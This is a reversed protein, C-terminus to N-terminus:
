TMKTNMYCFPLLLTIIFLSSQKMLLTILNLNYTLNTQSITKRKKKLKRM